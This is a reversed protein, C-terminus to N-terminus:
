FSISYSNENGSNMDQSLYRMRVVKGKGELIHVPKGDTYGGLTNYLYLKYSDGAQTGVVLYDFADEQNESLWFSNNLYVIEEGAGLGEVPVPSGVKDTLSYRYLQNDVVFFIVNAEHESIAYLEAERFPEGEPIEEVNTIPNSYSGYAFSLSYLYRKSADDKDAFVAYGLGEYDGVYRRGFYLLEHEIGENPFQGGLEFDNVYGSADMQVFRGNMEDFFYYGSGDYVGLKNPEYEGSRDPYGYQGSSGQGYDPMQMSFYIGRNSMYAIGFTNFWMYYPKEEPVENYFLTAHEHIISMDDVNFVRVDNETCVNIMPTFVFEGTEEDLYSGLPTLGLSVPKDNWKEGTAMEILNEMKEGDPLHLDLETAGDVEKLVYFGNSFETTVTLLSQHFTANGNSENTVWLGLDYTGSKVNVPYDLVNETGITDVDATQGMDTDVHENLTWVCSLVDDPNSSTAQPDIHLVDKFAVANYSEQLNPVTVAPLETYDYNGKDDFCSCLLWSIGIMWLIQIRKM